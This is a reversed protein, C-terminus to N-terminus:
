CTTPRRRLAGMAGILGTGLLILSSPEPVSSPPPPPNTTVSFDFVLAGSRFFDSASDANILASSVNGDCLNALSCISGGQYGVLSSGLLDVNFLDGELDESAFAYIPTPTTDSVSQSTVGNFLLIENPQGQEFSLTTNTVVGTTIDIYVFGDGIAGSQFSANSLIFTSVTDAFSTSAAFALALAAFAASSRRMTIEKNRIPGLSLTPTPQPPLAANRDRKLAALKEDRVTHSQSAHAM